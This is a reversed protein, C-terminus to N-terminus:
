FRTLQPKIKRKYFLHSTNTKRKKLLDVRKQFFYNSIAKGKLVSLLDAKKCFWCFIKKRANKNKWMKEKLSSILIFPPFCSYYQSQIHGYFLLPSFLCFSFGLARWYISPIWISSIHSHFHLPFLPCMQKKCDM